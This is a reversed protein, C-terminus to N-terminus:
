VKPKDLKDLKLGLVVFYIVAAIAIFNILADIFLGVEFTATRESITITFQLNELGDESILLGVLPTIMSNVIQNVVGTAATGLALGIALGMVGRERIFDTFGQLKTKPAVAIKKASAKVKARTEAAKVAKREAAAKTDPKRKQAAAM